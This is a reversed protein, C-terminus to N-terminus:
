ISKKFKNWRELNLSTDKPTKIGSKKITIPEFKNRQSAYDYLTKRETGINLIGTLDSKSAELIM